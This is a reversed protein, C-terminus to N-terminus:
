VHWPVVACASFLVSTAHAVIFEVDGTHDPEGQIGRQDRSGGCRFASCQCFDYDIYIAGAAAARGSSSSRGPSRHPWARQKANRKPTLKARPLAAHPAAHLRLWCRYLSVTAMLAFYQLYMILTGMPSYLSFVILCKHVAVNSQSQVIPSSMYTTIALLTLMTLVTVFM